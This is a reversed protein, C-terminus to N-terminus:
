ERGICGRSGKGFVIMHKYVRPDKPQIFREPIFARPNPYVEPDDHMFKPSM